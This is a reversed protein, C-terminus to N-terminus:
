RWISGIKTQAGPIQDIFLNTLTSVSLGLSGRVNSCSTTWLKKVSKDAKLIQFEYLKGTPCVGRTDNSDGTAEDNNMLKARNLAYVFQEYAPINNGITINDIPQNQYGTYITLIRQNPTVKVQYSRFDEDAVIAGRVTMAVARDASTSALAAQSTDAQSLVGSNDSFFLLRAIYTLGVIAIVIIIIILAVPLVRTSRYTAM